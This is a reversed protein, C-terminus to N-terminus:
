RFCLALWGRRSSDFTVTKVRLNSSWAGEFTRWEGPAPSGPYPVTPQNCAAAFLLLALAVWRRGLSVAFGVRLSM